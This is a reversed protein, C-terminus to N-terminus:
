LHEEVIMQLDNECIHEVFDNGNILKLNSQDGVSKAEPTFDSTTVVVVSDADSERIHLGAYRQIESSGVKNSPAYRKAQIM